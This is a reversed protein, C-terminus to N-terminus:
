GSTGWQLLKPGVGLGRVKVVEPDYGAREAAL